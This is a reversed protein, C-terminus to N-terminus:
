ALARRSRLFRMFRLRLSNPKLSVPIVRTLRAARECRAAAEDHCKSWGSYSYAHSSRVHVASVEDLRCPDRRRAASEGARTEGRPRAVGLDRARHRPWLRVDQEDQHVLEPERGHKGGADGGRVWVLGHALEERLEHRIQVRQPLAAYFEAAVVGGGRGARRGPADQDRAKVALLAPQQLRDLPFSEANSGGRRRRQVREERGVALQQARGSVRRGVDALPVDGDRLFSRRGTELIRRSIGPQVLYVAEVAAGVRVRVAGVQLPGDAVVGAVGRVEVVLIDGVLGHRVKFARRGPSRGQHRVTEKTLGCSWCNKQAPM